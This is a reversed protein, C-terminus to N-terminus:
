ISLKTVKKNGGYALSVIVRTLVIATFMSALIGIGLTTAFGKVPGTGVFYLIAATLFTTVNADTITILARQYGSVIAAQPTLGNRMEERIREFILVNADVAMGVTLVLGAIGPLTMTAPVFPLSMVGVVLVLNAILATNAVVGFGRYYFLMFAVVLLFGLITAYIGQEINDAGLSASVSNESVIFVPAALAGSRLLLALRQAEAPSDLGTTRFNTSFQSIISAISIATSETELIPRGNADRGVIQTDTYKVAMLNDINKGTWISMDLGGDTSLQVSVQPAGNEDVGARADILKDGTVIPQIKLLAANGLRDYVLQYGAPIIGSRAASAAAQAHAPNRSRYVEHYSITANSATISDVKSRDDVGPLDVQIRIEGQQQVVAEAIGLEDVRKRITSLNKDMTRQRIAELEEDRVVYYLDTEPAGAVGSAVQVTTADNAIADLAAQRDSAKRIPLTILGQEDISGRRYRIGQAKLIQKMESMADQHAKDYVTDIAVEYLISLGGQLDLGLAMPEFGLDALWEPTAPVVNLSVNYGDLQQFQEIAAVQDQNEAFRIRATGAVREVKSYPVNAAELLATAEAIAVRSYDPYVYLENSIPGAVVRMDPWTRTSNAQAEDLVAQLTSATPIRLGGREEFELSLRDAKVLAQKVVPVNSLEIKGDPNFGESAILAAQDNLTRRALREIQSLTREQETENYAKTIDLAPQSGYINPWAFFGALSVALVVLLVQWLRPKTLM